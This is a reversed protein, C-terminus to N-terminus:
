FFTFNLGSDVSWNLRRDDFDFERDIQEGLTRSLRLFYQGGIAGLWPVFSSWQADLTTNDVERTAAEDENHTKAWSFSMTTRDFARWNTRVGTRRTNEVEAREESEFRELDLTLDISLREHPQLGVGLAHVRNVLDASERGEQRNDQSSRNWSYGFAVRSWQWDAGARQNVSVQDPVHSANFDGNEPLDKGFQHTRDIGYQIRPLWAAGVGQIGTVEALGFALSGSTRRTLTKLISAIDDLNDESRIHAGQFQFGAVAGSMEFANDLMDSRAYAGISQYLPDVREHRFGFALSATRTSGLAVNRLLDMGVELYRADKTTERVPVLEDGQALTPDNPNLYRSRALGADLRFRGGTTAAEIRAGFGESEEADTVDGQNFGSLPLVSAGMGTLEVRLAGPRPLAEFGITGSMVRHDPEELGVLNGYGVLNTGNAMGLSVDFREGPSYTFLTGRSNFGSILHRQNGFGVHGLSIAMDAQEYTVLYSSLDIKPADSGLEGFRLAEPRYSTGILQTSSTIRLGDRLHESEIGLRGSLDQYEGRPPTNDTPDHGETLLGELGVDLGPDIRAVQFGLPTLVKLPERVVETWVDGHVHLVVLENEGSPLPMLSADYRIGSSDSRFLDSVDTTGLFVAIREGEDLPRHLRIEVSTDASLFGESPLLVDAIPPTAEASTQAITRVPVILIATVLLFGTARRPNWKSRQHMRNAWTSDM